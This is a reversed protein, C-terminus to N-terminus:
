TYKFYLLINSQGQTGGGNGEEVLLAQPAAESTGYIGQLALM